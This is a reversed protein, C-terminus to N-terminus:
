KLERIVEHPGTLSLWLAPTGCPDTRPGRSHEIYM